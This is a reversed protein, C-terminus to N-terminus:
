QILITREFKEAEPGFEAFWESVRCWRRYECENVAIANSPEYALIQTKEPWPEKPRSFCTRPATINSSRPASRGRGQLFTKYQVCLEKFIDKRVILIKRAEGPILPYPDITDNGNFGPL